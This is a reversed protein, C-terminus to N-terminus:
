TWDDVIRRKIIGDWSKLGYWKHSMSYYLFNVILVYIEWLWFKLFYNIKTLAAIKKEGECNWYATIWYGEWNLKFCLNEETRNCVGMERKVAIYSYNFWGIWFWNWNKQKRKHVWEKKSAEEFNTGVLDPVDDDDEEEKKGAEKVSGINGVIDKLFSLQKPGIQKLVDPLM